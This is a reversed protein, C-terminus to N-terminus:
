LRSGYGYVMGTTCMYKYLCITYFITRCKEKVGYQRRRTKEEERKKQTRAAYWCVNKSTERGNESKCVCRSFSIHTHTRSVRGMTSDSDTDRKTLKKERRKKARFFIVIHQTTRHPATDHTEKKKKWHRHSEIITKKRYNNTVTEPLCNEYM